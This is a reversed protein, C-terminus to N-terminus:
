SETSPQPDDPPEGLAFRAVVAASAARWAAQIKDGLDAWEPMPLGQYNLGGTSQGYAEYAAKALAEEDYM